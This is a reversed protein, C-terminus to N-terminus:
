NPAGPADVGRTEGIITSSTTQLTLSTNKPVYEMDTESINASNTKCTDPKEQTKTRVSRSRRYNRASKPHPIYQKLDLAMNEPWKTCKKSIQQEDGDTPRSHKMRANSDNSLTKSEGLADDRFIEDAILAWTPCDDDVRLHAQVCTFRM